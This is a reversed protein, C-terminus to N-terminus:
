LANLLQFPNKDGTYFMAHALLSVQCRWGTARSAMQDSTHPKAADWVRPLREHM